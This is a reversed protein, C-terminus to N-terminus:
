RKGRWLAEPHRELYEAMIRISRAAAALEELARDLDTMLPSNVGIVSDVSAASQRVQQLAAQGSVLTKDLGKVTDGSRQGAAEGPEQFGGGGPDM